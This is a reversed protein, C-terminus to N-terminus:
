GQREKWAVGTWLRVLRQQFRPLPSCVCMSIAIVARVGAMTEEAEEEGKVELGCHGKPVCEGVSTKGTIGSHALHRRVGPTSVLTQWQRAWGEEGVEYGSIRVNQRAVVGM